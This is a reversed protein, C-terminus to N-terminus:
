ITERQNKKADIEKTHKAISKEVLTEAQQRKCLIIFQSAWALLPAFPSCQKFDKSAPDTFSKSLESLTHHHKLLVNERITSCDVKQIKYMISDKNKLYM